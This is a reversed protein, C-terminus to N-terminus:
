NFEDSYEDTQDKNKNNNYIYLMQKSTTAESPKKDTRIRIFRPFRLSLGRGDVSGATYIPSLSLSAAKVEWVVRSLFWVDPSSGKKYSYERTDTTIYNSLEAHFAQLNEDSFGTGIKCCAEYLEMEDNYSGLLYGGYNGTRKGKGYYAGMVVLDMSDGLNDLYDSKVKIWSNTRLSPRYVSELSKIMVGECDESIAKKFHSDIEEVGRCIISDVFQFKDPISKFNNFLINRREELKKNLLDVGDFYLIDFAFVCVQVEIIGVNKRKRTSLISFPLIKGDKYAVVEGDIIFSKNGLDLGAIDPYKQTINESNRSFIMTSSSTSGNNTNNNTINNTNSCMHHIQVREGDYKYESVFEVNEVKSFAKTLNNSPQALMPKLPVGPTIKAHKQINKIGYKLLLNVLIEFNPQKNYADKINQIYDTNDIPTIIDSDSDNCMLIDRYNLSNKEVNNSSNKGNNNSNEDNNNNNKGNNGNNKESFAISLSILVTQLALGIALKGEFLRILYKTEIPSADNILSLMLNKKLNSSNKGVIQPITKIKEFIFNISNEKKVKFLQNVRHKMAFKGLDGLKSHEQRVKATTFGTAEAVVTLIIHDGIGLELGMYEPHFTATCLYLTAVLSDPDTDILKKIFTSLINQIELRSSTNSILELTNSLELFTTPKNTSNVKNCNNGNDLKSNDNAIQTSVSM